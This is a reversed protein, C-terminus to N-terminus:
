KVSLCSFLHKLKNLQTNIVNRHQYQLLFRIFNLKTVSVKLWFNVKPQFVRATCIVWKTSSNQLIGLLRTHTHPYLGM